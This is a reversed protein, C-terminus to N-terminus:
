NTLKAVVYRDKFPQIYQVHFSSANYLQFFDRVM